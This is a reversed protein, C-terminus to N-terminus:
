ELSARVPEGRAQAPADEYAGLFESNCDLWLTIRHFDEPSLKVGHHADTLYKMLPAAQAGFQGAISRAGGHVGGNFSGNTVHFYFGYKAALANYSQTFAGAVAGDLAIAKKERHCAVCARDLAPQVLRPYNFPNSGEVDPQIASPARLLAAPVRSPSTGGVPNTTHKREHCGQCTLREGPHVYTVSRMSQIALGREDLAQFYIPKGVPAEFYASGDAEVPVTGLVARANTQQACGIRPVNPPPTSKPLLQIIRLAAVKSGAPWAFDSDYVNM